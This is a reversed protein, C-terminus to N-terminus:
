WGFCERQRSSLGHNPTNCGRLVIRHNPLVILPELLLDISDIPLNVPHISRVPLSNVLVISLNTSVVRLNVLLPSLGILVGGACDRLVILGNSGVIRRSPGVALPNLVLDSANLRPRCDNPVLRHNSLGHVKM